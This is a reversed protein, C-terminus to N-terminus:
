VLVHKGAAIAALAHEKHLGHPTSVYVAEVKPYALLASIDTYAPAQFTESFAGRHAAHPEAAAVVRIGAHAHLAPATLCFARGLGIM